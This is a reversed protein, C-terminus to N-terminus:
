GILRFSDLLKKHLCFLEIVFRTSDSLDAKVWRQIENPSRHRLADIMKQHYNIGVIPNPKEVQRFMIHYYPSVRDWVQDIHSKLIPMEAANYIAHHFEKNTRLLAEYDNARRAIVYRNHCEELRSLAEETFRKAAEKAATCELLLRLRLIERLNPESLENVLYGRKRDSHVFGSAELMALAERVPIASVEMRRSINEIFFRQGPVIKGSVIARQLEGYVADRRSMNQEPQQGTAKGPHAPLKESRKESRHHHEWTRRLVLVGGTVSLGATRFWKSVLRSLSVITLPGGGKQSRFLCDVRSLNEERVYTSFLGYTARSVVIRNSAKPIRPLRLEQGPKLNEFDAVRLNLLDKAHMGTQIALEFFLLDRLRNKLTKRLRSIDGATEIFGVTTAARTKAKLRDSGGKMKEKFHLSFFTIFHM